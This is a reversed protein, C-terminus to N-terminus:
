ATLMKLSFTASQGGGGANVLTYRGRMQQGWLYPKTVGANCDATVDFTTAAVATADLVAYHKQAAGNGAVQPFHIANLWTAGDPALVDVFVNLVDGAAGAMATVDLEVVARAAARTTVATGGQNAVAVVRTASPFLVGQEAQAFSM